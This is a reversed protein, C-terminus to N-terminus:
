FFHRALSWWPAVPPWNAAFFDLWITSIQRFIVTTCTSQTSIDPIQFQSTSKEPGSRFKSFIRVSHLLYPKGRKFSVVNITGALFKRCVDSRFLFKLRRERESHNFIPLLCVFTDTRLLFAATGLILWVDNKAHIYLKCCKCKIHQWKKCCFWKISSKFNM